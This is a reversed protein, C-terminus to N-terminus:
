PAGVPTGVDSPIVLGHEQWREGQGPRFPWGRRRLGSAPLHSALRGAGSHGASARGSVCGGASGPDAATAGPATPGPQLLGPVRAPDASARLLRPSVPPVRALLADGLPAWMLRIRM